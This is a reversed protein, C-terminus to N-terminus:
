MIYNRQLTGDIDSRDYQHIEENHKSSNLIRNFELISKKANSTNKYFAAFGYLADHWSAKSQVKYPPVMDNELCLEWLLGYIRNEDLDDKIFLPINECTLIIIGHIIRIYGKSELNKLTKTVSNKGIRMIDALEENTYSRMLRNTGNMCHLKLFILSAKEKQELDPDDLLEPYIIAYDKDLQPYKYVNYPHDSTKKKGELLLLSTKLISQIRSNVTKECIGIDEALQKQAYSCLRTDDKVQSGIRCLILLDKWDTRKNNLKETVSNPIQLFKRRM